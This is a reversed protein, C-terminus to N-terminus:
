RPGAPIPASAGSSTAQLATRLPLGQEAWAEMGGGLEVVEGYGLRALDRVALASMRGSRCYIALPTRRDVPLRAAEALIRDFPLDLDTGDLRGEFPVHVNM